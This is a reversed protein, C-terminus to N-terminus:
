VQRGLSTQFAQISTYLNTIDSSDLGNSIYVLRFESNVYGPPYPVGNNGRLNGIFMSQAPLTGGSNGTGVNTSNKYLTTTTSSTRHASFLGLATITSSSIVGGNLRTAFTTNTKNIVLSSSQTSTVTSVGMHVPDSGSASNLTGLYIGMGNSNVNQAFSPTLFTNAYGTTGNPVAGTSSHVWGGFFQLRFAVDLDRPDKLNFKHSSATGGIFPYVAKLKTWIGYTKLQTVLTNIANQQTTDTINAATIFAQADTDIGGGGGSAIRVGVKVQGLGNVINSM